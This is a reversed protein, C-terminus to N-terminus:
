AIKLDDTADIEMASKKESKANSLKELTILNYLSRFDKDKVDLHNLIYLRIFLEIAPSIRRQGNEWRLVAVHSVGLIKGFETTTMFLSKRMFRLEDKTLRTQKCVLSRLVVSQLEDM